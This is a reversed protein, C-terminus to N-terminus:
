ANVKKETLIFTDFLLFVGCLFAVAIIVVYALDTKHYSIINHLGLCGLYTNMSGTLIYYFNSKDEVGGFLRIFLAFLGLFIFLFLIWPLTLLILLFLYKDLLNFLFTLFVILVATYALNKYKRALTM